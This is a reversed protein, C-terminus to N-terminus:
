NTLRWSLLNAAKKSFRFVRTEHPHENVSELWVFNLRSEQTLRHISRGEDGLKRVIRHRYHVSYEPHKPYEMQDITTQPVELFRDQSYEVVHGDPAGARTKRFTDAVAMAQYLREPDHQLTAVPILRRGHRHITALALTEKSEANMYPTVHEWANEILAQAIQREQGHVTTLMLYCSKEALVALASSVVADHAPNDARRTALHIDAEEVLIPTNAPVGNALHLLGEPNKLYDDPYVWGILATGNHHFAYGQQFFNSGVLVAYTTRGSKRPGTIITIPPYKGTTDM